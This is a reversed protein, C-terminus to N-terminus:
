ISELVAIKVRDVSVERLCKKYTQNRCKGRGDKSCPKCELQVELVKSTTRTPYGFATPGILAITPVGMQDAVHLLGTDNSITLASNQIVACSELLSTRGALNVVRNEQGPLILESCFLDNPGGLVVFNHDQLIGILRKWYNIPWRKLEWAASPSLVIYSKFPVISKLKEFTNAPVVMQPAAPIENPIGWKMLPDIYSAQAIFPQPFLNKRFTFLLLRKFREKKRRVFYKTKLFLCIIRSRINDHADYVHTFNEQRLLKILEWLGKLGTTRDYSWLKHIHPHHKLIEQFDSRVVWHVQAQPFVHTFAVPVGMAQVIDGFSSLRIILLKQQEM